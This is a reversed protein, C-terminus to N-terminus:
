FLTQWFGWGLVALLTFYVLLGVIVLLTGTDPMRRIIQKAPASRVSSQTEPAKYLADVLAQFPEQAQAFRATDGDFHRLVDDYCREIEYLNERLEARVGPPEVGHIVVAIYTYRAAEILIHKDGYEVDGLHEGDEEGFADEVFDQIATLMGSILASDPYSDALSPQAYANDADGHTKNTHYRLLIGTERHIWFFEAVEYPLADRLYVESLPVGRISAQVRQWIMGMNLASRMQADLRQALDRMAETVSRQVLRGTIPYLADIMQERSENVNSRIADAIIPHLADIMEYRSEQISSQISAAIIPSITARLREKDNIREEVAALERQLHVLETRLSDIRTQYPELLLTRLAELTEEDDVGETRNREVYRDSRSIDGASTMVTTKQQRSAHEAVGRRHLNSGTTRSM